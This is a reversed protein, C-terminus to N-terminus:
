QRPKWMRSGFVAFRGAEVGLFEYLLGLASRRPEHMAQDAGPLSFYAPAGACLFEPGDCRLAEGGWITGDGGYGTGDWALALVPGALDHEAMAAAVHAHHHQVRLLQARWRAALSEAERTSAYDPHLDCVVVEPKVAFFNVLDEIARRFVQVSLINDLDGIHPTMVVQTTSHTCRVARDTEQHM